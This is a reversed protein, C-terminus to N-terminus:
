VGVALKVAAVEVSQEVNYLPTSEAICGCTINSMSVVGNVYKQVTSLATEPTNCNESLHGLVVQGLNPHAIEALFRGAVDNSLHGHSSAIRQKLEWSYHSTYLMGLDHNSELVVANSGQLAERVVTTVKGLDTAQAFKLGEGEIVFGVPDVADHVIGFPRILAGGISFEEGTVFNELGYPTDLHAATAENAYVPISYRRSLPAVGCIHDSHEHTIIIANITAADIGLAALRKTVQTASLGSDILIRQSGVEIFTSNAKSGSSLVSFRM